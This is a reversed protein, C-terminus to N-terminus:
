TGSSAHAIRAAVLIRKCHLSFFHVSSGLQGRIHDSERELERSRLQGHRRSAIGSAPRRDDPLRLLFQLNSDILEFMLILRQLNLIACDLILEVCLLLFDISQDAL